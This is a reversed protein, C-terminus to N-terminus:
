ETKFEIACRTGIAQHLFEMAEDVTILALPMEDPNPFQVVVDGM